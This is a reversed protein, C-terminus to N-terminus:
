VPCMPSVGIPENIVEVGEPAPPQRRPPRRLKRSKEDYVALHVFSFSVRWEHDSIRELGVPEGALTESLFLLRSQWKIEGKPRV